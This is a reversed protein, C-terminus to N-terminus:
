STRDETGPESLDRVAATELRSGDRHSAPALVHGTIRGIM